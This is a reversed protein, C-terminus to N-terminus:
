RIFNTMVKKQFEPPPLTNRCNDIIKLLWALNAALVRLCQMGECDGAVEGPAMGYVMSWYNSGPIFMESIGFFKNLQDLATAAGARRVAVIGAGVKHRFLGGNASAVFFARDLFAKLSGNVGAYYVPSGLVLGDASFMTELWGNLPDDNQICRRNPNQRCSGCGLCGHLAAAGIEIRETSIGNRNLTESVVDLALATNGNKRSSGNVTVVKM